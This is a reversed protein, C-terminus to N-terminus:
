RKSRVRKGKLPSVVAWVVFATLHVWACVLSATHMSCVGSPLSGMRRAGDADGDFQAATHVRQYWVTMKRCQWGAGAIASNANQTQLLHLCQPPASPGPLM